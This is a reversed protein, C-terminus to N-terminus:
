NTSAKKKKKRVPTEIAEELKKGRHLRNLTNQYNVDMKECLDRLTPYVKGKYHINTLDLRNNTKRIPTNLIKDLSWGMHRRSLAIAPSINYDKCLKSFSSYRKGKYTIEDGMLDGVPIDIAEEISMGKKRMRMQVIHYPVGKVKALNRMSPYVEDKYKISIGNRHGKLPTEVADEVSVGRKLRQSMMSYSLNYEDCLAKLSPYDVGKYSLKIGKM